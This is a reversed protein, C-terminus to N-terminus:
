QVPRQDYIRALSFHAVDLMQYNRSKLSQLSDLALKCAHKRQVNKQFSVEALLLDIHELLLEQQNGSSLKDNRQPSKLELAKRKFFEELLRLSRYDKITQQFENSAILGELFVAFQAPPLDDIIWKDDPEEDVAMRRLSDIWKEDAVYKIASDLTHENEDLLVLAKEYEDRASDHAGLEELGMAIALMGEHVAPDSADRSELETWPILAQQIRIKVDNGPHVREFPMLEYRQYLNQDASGTKPGIISEPPPGITREDGIAQQEQLSGSPALWAWGLGLLAQSSMPGDRSIREFIPIATAGQLQALFYYGLMLNAKDRLRALLLDNSNIEGVRNLATIGQGPHNTKILAIGLNYYRVLSEYDASNEIHILLNSAKDFEGQALLVRSYIDQWTNLQAKPILPGVKMLEDAARALEGSKYFSLALQLQLNSFMRNTAGAAVPHMVASAAMQFMGLTIANSALEQDFEFSPLSESQDVALRRLRTLASFSKQDASLYKAHGIGLEISSIEDAVKRSSIPTRRRFLLSLAGQTASNSPSGESRLYLEPESLYHPRRASIEIASLQPSKELMGDYSLRLLQTTTTAAAASDHVGVEIHLQHSGTALKLCSFKYLGGKRLSNQQIQNFSQHLELQNDVLLSIEVPTLNATDTGVYVELRQLADCDLSQTFRDLDVNLDVAKEMLMEVSSHTSEASVPAVVTIFVFALALRAVALM